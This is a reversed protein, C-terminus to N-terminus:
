LFKDSEFCVLHLLNVVNGGFLELVEGEHEGDRGGAKSGGEDDDGQHVADEGKAVDGIYDGGHEEVGEDEKYIVVLLLGPAGVVNAVDNEVDVETGPGDPTKEVGDGVKAEEQAVNGADVSEEGEGGLNGVGEIAENSENVVM